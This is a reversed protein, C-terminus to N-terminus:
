EKEQRNCVELCRSLVLSILMLAAEIELTSGVQYSVWPGELKLTTRYIWSQAALIGSSGAGRLKGMRAM